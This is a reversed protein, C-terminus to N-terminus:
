RFTGNPNKHGKSDEFVEHYGGSIVELKRANSVQANSANIEAKEFSCVFEDNM